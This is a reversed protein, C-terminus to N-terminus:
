PHLCVAPMISGHLMQACSVAIGVIRALCLSLVYIVALTHVKLLDKYEPFDQIAQQYHHSRLMYLHCLEIAQALSHTCVGRCFSLVTLGVQVSATRYVDDSVLAAEGFFSGAELEFRTQNGWRFGFRSGPSSDFTSEEKRLVAM